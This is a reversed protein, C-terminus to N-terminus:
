VREILTAVGMGLGICMSVVGYRQNRQELEDVITGTLIAGTAGLPHGLSIAGGNVNVKLPNLGLEQITVMPVPAFAENIEWLDVNDAKIGAKNLLKKIAPIPGTLMLDPDSGTVAQAIIKARPKLGHQKLAKESALLVAASGDVIASSNGATLVGDDKFATKLSNLAEITTDPRPNDDETMFSADGAENIYSVPILSRSFANRKKALEAKQQSQLAYNDVADRSFKWKDAIREAALGQHVMQPYNKELLPSKEGGADSLMPVRTMHEIGAAIILDAEKAEIQSSAFNLAQLSSACLRNITCAPVEIPFGAALVSARAICWSQEKVQTVCGAIVDEISGAGVKNRDTIEKLVFSLLDVPHIGSYKGKKRARPTRLCDVIYSM